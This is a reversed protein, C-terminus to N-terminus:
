SKSYATKHRPRNMNNNYIYTKVILWKQHISHLFMPGEEFVKLYFVTGERYMGSLLLTMKIRLMGTCNFTTKTTATSTM